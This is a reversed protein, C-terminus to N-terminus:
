LELIEVNGQSDGLAVLGRAEDYDVTTWTGNAGEFTWLIRVDEINDVSNQCDRLRSPLLAAVLMEKTPRLAGPSHQGPRQTDSSHVDYATLDLNRAPRPQIWVATGHSGVLIDKCRLHGRSSIWSTQHVPPLLYPSVQAPLFEGLVGRGSGSARAEDSLTWSLPQDHAFAPNPQVTYLNLTHVDSYWPDDSEARLVISLPPPLTSRVSHGQLSM